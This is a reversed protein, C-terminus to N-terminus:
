SRPAAADLKGQLYAVKAVDRVWSPAEDWHPVPCPKDSRFGGRFISYALKIREDDDM